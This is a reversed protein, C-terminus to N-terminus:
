VRISPSWLLIRAANWPAAVHKAYIGRFLVAAMRVRDPM